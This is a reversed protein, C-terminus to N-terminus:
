NGGTYSRVVPKPDKPGEGNQGSGRFGWSNQTVIGAPNTTSNVSVTSGPAVVIGVHGFNGHAQAIVDGAQAESLPKTGSWGPIKVSPDAWEHATPDRKFGLLGLVGSRAVQPRPRGSEQVTDAVLENCKNSGAKYNGKSNAELYQTSNVKNGAVSAISEQSPKNVATKSSSIDATQVNGAQIDNATAGGLDAHGDPDIKGLPNNEVYAYLNLTQPNHLDAYPVPAPIASWDATLFRGMASSYYRAGFNDLNSETDREKGTFKHSTLNSTSCITNDQEGFPYLANCDAVAGAVSTLVTSTGINNDHVFFTTSNKYEAILQGGAYVYGVQMTDSGNTEELVQGPVIDSVYATTVAGVTKQVRHGERM